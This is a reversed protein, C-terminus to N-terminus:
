QAAIQAAISAARAPVFDNIEQVRRLYEDNTARKRQDAIVDPTVLCLANELLRQIREAMLTSGALHAVFQLYRERYRPVQLVQEALQNYFSGRQPVEEGVWIDGDTVIAEELVDNKESWLHGLSLDLDWPIMKWGPQGARHDRYLYFNKRIHDHNQIVAMMALYVLYDDIAIESDAVRAFRANDLSLIMEILAELDAYDLSGAHQQYIQRYLEKGENPTLNGNASLAVPPDGEYLSGGTDLGHHALFQTDIREVNHMLGYYEGNLRFHVLQSRPTPLWTLTRFLRFALWNRLMTKDNYEARLIIHRGYVGEPTVSMDFRFSKKSYYRSSGGHLRVDTGYEKGAITLKGKEEVRMSPADTIRKLALPDITLDWIPLQTAYVQLETSGSRGDGELVAEVRAVGPAGFRVSIAAVGERMEESSVLEASAPLTLSLRGNARVDGSGAANRIMVKARRVIGVAVPGEPFEISVVGTRVPESKQFTLGSPVCAALPEDGTPWKPELMLPPADPPGDGDEADGACGATILGFM